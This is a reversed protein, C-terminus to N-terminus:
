AIIALIYWGLAALVAGFPILFALGYVVGNGVDDGKRHATEQTMGNVRAKFNPTHWPQCPKDCAIRRAAFYGQVNDAFGKIIRRAMVFSAFLGVIKEDADRSWFNLLEQYWASGVVGTSMQAPLFVLTEVFEAIHIGIYFGPAAYLMILPFFTVLDYWALDRGDKINPIHLAIEAKDLLSRKERKKRKLKYRNFVILQALTGGIVGEYVNRMTHRLHDDPVVDHWLGNLPTSYGWFFAGDAGLVFYYLAVVILTGIQVLAAAAAVLIITQRIWTLPHQFPKVLPPPLPEKAAKPKRRFRPIAVASM